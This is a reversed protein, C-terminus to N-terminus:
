PPPRQGVLDHPPSSERIPSLMGSRSLTLSLSALRIRRETASEYYEDPRSGNAPSGEARLLVSQYLIESPANVMIEWVDDDALLPALPGYGTLNWIARQALRDPDPLDFRRVGRKHDLSWQAIAEEVLGEMEGPQAVSDLELTRARAQVLLEIEQLPSLESPETVPKM